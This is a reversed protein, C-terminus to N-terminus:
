NNREQAPLPKGPKLFNSEFPKVLVEIFHWGIPHGKDGENLAADFMKHVVQVVEYYRKPSRGEAQETFSTLDILEGARPVAQLRIPYFTGDPECINAEIPPPEM